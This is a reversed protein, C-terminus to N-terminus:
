SLAFAYLKKYKHKVIYDRNSEKIIKELVIPDDDFHYSCLALRPCQKALTNHAGLLMEREAGEIDAKLYNITEGYEEVFSDITTIPVSISRHKEDEKRVIRNQGINETDTMFVIGEKESLAKSIITVNDYLAAVKELYERTRQIPEFSYVKHGNRAAIATFIGLNAGGDVVTMTKDTVELIVDEYPGEDVYAYEDFFRPLILDAIEELFTRKIYPESLLFNPLVLNGIKLLEGDYSIGNVKLCDIFKKEIALARDQVYLVDPMNDLASIITAEEIQKDSFFSLEGICVIYADDSSQQCEQPQVVDINNYYNAGRKEVNEDIFSLVKVDKKKLLDSVRKGDKGAGIIFVGKNFISLDIEELDGFRIIEM